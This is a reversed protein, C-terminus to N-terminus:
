PKNCNNSCHKNFSAQLRHSWTFDTPSSNSHLKPPIISVPPFPTSPSFRTTTGSQGGCIECPSVLSRLRAQGGCIECPSVLSRLRAQGGCIECPSVLSRVRAQGGCIECPSVLSRLRAQGGCIECPSVLSRLRAETTVPRRSVQGHQRGAKHTHHRLPRTM